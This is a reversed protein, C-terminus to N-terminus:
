CGKFNREQCKRAMEQAKEIQQPTMKKAVGDRNKAGNAHGALSALNYWMHASAYDQIVGQGYDYMVGLNSQAVANGQAAALRWWKLAEQYNRTVGQGKGYMIGLNYQASADGQAALPRFIKLAQAYDGRKYAAFADDFPAANATAILSCISVALLLRKITPMSLEM